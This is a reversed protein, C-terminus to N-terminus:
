EVCIQNAIAHYKKESLGEVIIVEEKRRFRGHHERYGIIRQALVEGIGELRILEEATATNLNICPKSSEPQSSAVEAPRQSPSNINAVDRGPRCASFTLAIVAVPIIQRKM